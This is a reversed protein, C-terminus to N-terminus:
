LVNRAAEIFKRPNVPKGDVHVEYHLHTGTSRGTSGMDGIRMGRRVTQGQSVRVRNLHAYLTEFGFQHRIKVMRGYGRQVGAFVVVGDAPALIPTGTPGAFDIGDHRALRRNFPDRRTGFGSTIRPNSVPSGFPMRKAATHLLRLQELGAIVSAAADPADGADPDYSAPIFPGGAAGTERRLEEIIREVNVGAGRLMDQLPVISLEAAKEIQSLLRAQRDREREVGAELAGLAGVFEVAQATADDRALATADLAMSLRHLTDALEDREAAAMQHGAREAALESAAQQAAANAAAAEAALTTLRAKLAAKDAELAGQAATAATLADHRAGLEALAASAQARAEELAALLADRDTDGSVGAPADLATLDDEVARLTLLATASVSWVGLLVALCLCAFQTRSCIRLVQTRRASSRVVVSKEPLLGHLLGTRASSGEQM